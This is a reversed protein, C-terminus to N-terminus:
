KRQMGFQEPYIDEKKTIFFMVHYDDVEELKNTFPNMVKNIDWWRREFELVSFLRDKGAYHRDPDAILVINNKTDLKTIISFHGPDDDEDEDVEEDPYDFVGQWEVSVPQEHMNLIASLEGMTSHTKSWFQLEPALISSARGLEAVTMGHDKIKHGVGAAEVIDDQNVEKGHFALLAKLVAPGCYYSNEQAVRPLFPFIGSSLKKLM